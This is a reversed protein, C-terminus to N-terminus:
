KKIKTKKKQKKKKLKLEYEKNININFILFKLLKHKRLWAHFNLIKSLFLPSLYIRVIMNTICICSIVM